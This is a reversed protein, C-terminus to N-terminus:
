NEKQKAIQDLTVCFERIVGDLTGVLNTLPASIVGVLQAILQDKSPLEALAKLQDSTYLVGDAWFAKVEPKENKKKFDYIIKAPVTPDDAGFAIATPGQFYEALDEHGKNKAALKLLTNKAVRYKINNDRLSKRFDTIQAVNLGLYDTIFINNAEEFLNSLEDVMTEKEPRKLM